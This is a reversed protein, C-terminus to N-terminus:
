TRWGPKGPPPGGSLSKSIDNAPRLQALIPLFSSWPSVPGDLVRCRRAAAAPVFRALATTGSAFWNTAVLSLRSPGNELWPPETHAASPLGVAAPLGPSQM